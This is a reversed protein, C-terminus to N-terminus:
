SLRGASPAARRGRGAEPLVLALLEHVKRPATAQERRLLASHAARATSPRGSGAAPPAARRAPAQGRAAAALPGVGADAGEDRLALGPPTTPALCAALIPGGAPGRNRLQQALCARLSAGLPLRPRAVCSLIAQSRSNRPSSPM